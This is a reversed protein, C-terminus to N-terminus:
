EQPKPDSVTHPPAHAFDPMKRANQKRNIEGLVAAIGCLVRSPKCAHTPALNVEHVDDGIREVVKVLGFFDWRQLNHVM